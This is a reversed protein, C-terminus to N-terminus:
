SDSSMGVLCQRDPSWRPAYLNESHPSQRFWSPINLDLVQIDIKDASGPIFPVRGFVLQKGDPSWGVDVQYHKEPLM